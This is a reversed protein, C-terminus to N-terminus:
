RRARNFARPGLKATAIRYASTESYGERVLARVMKSWQPSHVEYGTWRHIRYHAPVRQGNEKTYARVFTM